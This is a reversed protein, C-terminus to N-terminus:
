RSVAFERADRLLFRRGQRVLEGNCTVPARELHAVVAEEYQRGALPVFIKKLRGKLGGEVVVTGASASPSRDLAMVMGQLRYNKQLVEVYPLQFRRLYQSAADLWRPFSQPLHLNSPVDTQMPRIRSWSFSVDIGGGVANGAIMESVAECLNASVGEEVAGRLLTADSLDPDLSPLQQIRSLARALTLTAKRDISEASVHVGNSDIGSVVTFVFSGRETHGMRVNRLYSSAERFEWKSFYAQPQVAACAASWLMERAGHVLSVAEDIPISEPTTFMEESPGAIRIVDAECTEIEFLINDQSRREVLELTHLLERVRTAYDASSILPVLAEFEGHDNELTWLAFKEPSRKQERWGNAKLYCSINASKVLSVRRRDLILENM